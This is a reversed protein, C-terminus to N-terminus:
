FNLLSCYIVLAVCNFFQNENKKMVCKLAKYVAFGIVAGLVNLIIDDIDCSGLSFLLQTIEISLSVLFSILLINKLNKCNNFLIPLLVGMPSFALINGLLNELVINSDVNGGLYYFITKFPVFNIGAIKQSWPQNRLHRAIMLATGNKLVVINILLALYVLFLSWKLLKFGNLKRKQNL